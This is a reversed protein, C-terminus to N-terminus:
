GSQLDFGPVGYNSALAAQQEPTLVVPTGISLARYYVESIWEVMMVTETAEAVSDGLAVPGHNALIIARTMPEKAFADLCHKALEPSGAPAFDTVRIKSARISLSENCIFPVDVRAVGFAAAMKSHTHVIATVDPRARYIRCHLRVESTPTGDGVAAATPIDVLVLDGPRMTALKAGSPTFLAKDEGVRHSINGASGIVHTGSLTHCAESIESALVTINPQM